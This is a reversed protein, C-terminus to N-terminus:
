KEHCPDLLFWGSGTCYYGSRSAYDEPVDTRPAWIGKHKHCLDKGLDIYAGKCYSVYNHERRKTSGAAVTASLLAIIALKFFQM